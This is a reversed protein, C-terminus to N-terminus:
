SLSLGSVSPISSDDCPLLNHKEYYFRLKAVSLWIASRHREAFYCIFNVVLVGEGSEAGLHGLTDVMWSKLVFGKALATFLDMFSAAEILLNTVANGNASTNLLINLGYQICVINPYNPNYMKKKKAVPLCYYFTKIFYSQLTALVTNTYSSRIRSNLHWVCFTKTKDFYNSLSMSIVSGVCKAHRSEVNLFCYPVVFSLFFGSAITADAYFNAWENGVVDSHGKVKNYCIHKKKIWYKNYFDPGTMGGAFKCMNLLAQSDIYLVVSQSTPMCKLALAITQLKVLTLSLLGNVKVRISINVDPFYTTTGDCAGVLGLNKVSSNTYITIFDFRSNLLHKGIYGFDCLFDTPVFCFSLLVSNALGSEVIFKVLSVFWVFVPGRLDLKKFVISYKKLSKVIGLYSEFSLMDLVAISNGTLWFATQLILWYSLQFNLLTDSCEAQPRCSWPNAFKVLGALLNESLVQKFTRLDYLEPHYLAKNPFNKPLNTKLKLDKRLIKDWKECVSKFVCSFQLRYGIISQLIASVLYLFQKKTVAKRLVVNSFFKIDSYAKALSPKSLGNMSFFIISIESDSISLLVDKAEQNIPIAVMKDTNIAIDNILFFESVIDLIHQTAVLCNEVWITDNVFAGTAFFSTKGVKLNARGTKTFFKSNLRYGCLHEHKKVAKTDNFDLSAEMTPSSCRVFIGAAKENPLEKVVLLFENSRIVDIVDSFASNSVYNLFAYQNSWCDPLSIPAIFTEICKNIAKRILIDRAVRSEYYKSKQYSKKVGSLHQLINERSEGNNFMIYAKSTRKSDLTFWVKFLCVAELEQNLSLCKVNLQVNLLSGLRISVLVANHNINFFDSVPTIEHDALMSLLNKSMFIYNIVKVVGLFHGSFSNVLELDSYFKYSASKRSGNKNFDSSLVVFMFFNAAKAIFFNIKCAQGFRTKAFAGAYLGLIVVLLKGLFDNMIIAMEAGLFRKDLGSSFIKVEDFKNIIWSRAKSKLKTETVISVMCGSDIHWQVIDKQKALVNIGCVNCTVIKWVLDANDIKALFGMVMILLNNLTKEIKSVVSFDFVAVEVITKNSTVVDSSKSIVIDTPQFVMPRPSDLRKVLSVMLTSKIESSSSFATTNNYVHLSPFSFGGVINAWLVGNFSMPCFIPAFCKAYISVLKSKNDDLLIRCTTGSPSVNEDVSCSLSTHGKLVPTTEMIADISAASDFCVVVCKACTKGSVSGIFDVLLTYLLARHKVADKGILIFWKATVLDAQDSQAFEVVTKAKASTGVLIKKVVVTWYNITIQLNTDSLNTDSPNLQTRQIIFLSEITITKDMAEQFRLKMLKKKLKIALIGGPLSDEILHEVETLEGKQLIEQIKNELIVQTIQTQLEKFQANTIKGLQNSTVMDM